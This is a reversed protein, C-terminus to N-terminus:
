KNQPFQREIRLIPVGMLYIRLVRSRIKIRLFPLIWFLKCRITCSNAIFSAEEKLFEQFHAHVLAQNFKIEAPHVLHDLDYTDKFLQDCEVLASFHAGSKGINCVLNYTPNICMLRNMMIHFAWMYAWSDVPTPSQMRRVIKKWYSQVRPNDSIVSLKDDLSESELKTFYDLDYQQWRDAWTAWGWVHPVKAFYYSEDCDPQRSLPNTGGIHFIRLDDKYRDLLEECYRFFSLSPLCDDELIIGDKEHKFFWTIASSVAKGCGLNDQNFRTRVECPWDIREILQERLGLVVRKEGKKNARPGDSAIYLRPPAAERIRRFVALTEEPRNFVLFLVAKNM